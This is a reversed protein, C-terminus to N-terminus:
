PKPSNEQKEGKRKANITHVKIAMVEGVVIFLYINTSKEGHHDSPFAPPFGKSSDSCALTSHYHLMPIEKMGFFVLKVM